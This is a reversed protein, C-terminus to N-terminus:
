IRQQRKPAYDNPRYRRALYIDAIASYSTFEAASTRAGNDGWCTDSIILDQIGDGNM